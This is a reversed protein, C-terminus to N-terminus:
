LSRKNWLFKVFSYGEMFLIM